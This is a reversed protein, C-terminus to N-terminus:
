TKEITGVGTGDPNLRLEDFWINTKSLVINFVGDYQKPGGAGLIRRLCLIFQVSINLVERFVRGFPAVLLSTFKLLLFSYEEQGLIVVLGDFKGLTQGFPGELRLIRFLTVQYARAATGSHHLRCIFAGM